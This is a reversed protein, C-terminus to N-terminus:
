FYAPMVRVAVLVATVPTIGTVPSQRRASESDVQGLRALLKCLPLGNLKFDQVPGPVVSDSLLSEILWVALPAVTVYYQSRTHRHYRKEIVRRFSSGVGLRAWNIVRVHM